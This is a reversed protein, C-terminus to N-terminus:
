ILSALDISPQPSINTQLYLFPVSQLGPEQGPSAKLRKWELSEVPYHCPFLSLSETESGAHMHTCTRTHEHTHINMHGCTSLVANQRHALTEGQGRVGWACLALLGSFGLSRRTEMWETSPYFSGTKNKIQISPIM